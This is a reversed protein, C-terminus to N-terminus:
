LFSMFILRFRNMNRFSDRILLLFIVAQNLFILSVVVSYVLQNVAYRYVDTRNITVNLSYIRYIIYPLSLITYSIVRIFIMATLQQDLRRRDVPIQRRIIRRVNQYALISFLCSVFIPLLGNLVPYYFFSYYTILITNTIMCGSPFHIDLFIAFPITHLLCLFSAFVIQRQALKLSSLQRLYAIYNTSLFQDFAAFCVIFGLMFRCWQPLTNKIKCWVLSVNMPEVEDISLKWIEDIFIHMLQTIDVISEVILYFACRNHRFIKLNTFVLINLLHGILGLGVIIFTSYISYLQTVAVLEGADSSNSM